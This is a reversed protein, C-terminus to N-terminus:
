ARCAKRHRAQNRKKRAMRKVHAQTWGPGRCRQWGRSGAPGYGFGYGSAVLESAVTRNRLAKVVGQPVSGAQDAVVVRVGPQGVVNGGLGITGAAALAALAALSKRM